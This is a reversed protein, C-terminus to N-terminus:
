IMRDDIGDFVKTTVPSVVAQESLEKIEKHRLNVQGALPQRRGNAGSVQVLDALVRMAPINRSDALAEAATVQGRFKHDYDAPAYGAWAAPSDDLM